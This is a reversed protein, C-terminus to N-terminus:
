LTEEFYAIKYENYQRQISNEKFSVVLFQWHQLYRYMLPTICITLITSYSLAAFKSSQNDFVEAYDDKM